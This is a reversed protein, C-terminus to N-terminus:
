NKGTGYAIDDVRKEITYYPVIGWEKITAYYIHEIEFEKFDGIPTRKPTSVIEEGGDEVYCVSTSSDSNNGEDNPIFFEKGMIFRTTLLTNLIIFFIYLNNIM